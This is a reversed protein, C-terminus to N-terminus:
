IVKGESTYAKKKRSPQTVFSHRFTGVETGSEPFNQRSARCTCATATFSRVRKAGTAQIKWGNLMDVSTRLAKELEHTKEDHLVRPLRLAGHDTAGWLVIYFRKM